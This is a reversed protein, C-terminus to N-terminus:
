ELRYKTRLNHKKTLAENFHNGPAKFEFKHGKNAPQNPKKIKHFLCYLFLMVCEPAAHRLPNRMQSTIHLDHTRARDFAGTGKLM